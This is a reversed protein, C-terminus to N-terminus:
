HSCLIAFAAERKLSASGGPRQVRGPMTPSTDDVAAGEASCGRSCSAIVSRADCDIVEGATCRYLEGEDCTATAVRAPQSVAAPRGADLEPLCLQTTALGRDMLVELGDVVCGRACSGIPEWPCSCVGEPGRCPRALKALRSVEVQGEICRALGDPCDVGSLAVAGPDAPLPGGGVGQERLWGWGCGRQCGLM